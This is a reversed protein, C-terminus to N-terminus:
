ALRGRLYTEPRYGPFGVTRGVTDLEAEAEDLLRRVHRDPLPEDMAARAAVLMAIARTLAPDASRGTVASVEVALATLGALRAPSGTRRATVPARLLSRVSLALFAVVCAAFLWPLAPLAVRLPDLPQYPLPRDFLGAYRVDAVEDLYATLVDAQRYSNRALTGAVHGFFAAGAVDAFDAAHPGYYRIWNGVMVVIPTDPFLRTLAPGFEPVAADRPQVPLVVYRVADSDFARRSASAPVDPVTTGPAAYFGRVRLAAVVPALEADTPTRWADGTATARTQRRLNLLSVLLATVDNRGFQDRWEDATDPVAVVSRNTVWTGIVEITANDVEHLRQRQDATLGPPAVLIRVDTDSAAGVVQSEDWVAVSGPLRVVPNAAVMAKLQQVSPLSVTAPAEPVSAGVNSLGYRVDVTQRQAVLFVVQIVIAAVVLLWWLLALPGRARRAPREAV